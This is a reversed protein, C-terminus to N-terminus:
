NSTCQVHDVLQYILKFNNSKTFLNYFITEFGGIFVNMVQQTLIYDFTFTFYVFNNYYYNPFVWM